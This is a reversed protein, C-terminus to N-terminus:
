LENWLTSVPVQATVFSADKIGMPCCGQEDVRMDRQSSRDEKTM